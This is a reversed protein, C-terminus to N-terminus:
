QAVGLCSNIAQMHEKYENSNIMEQNEDYTTAKKMIELAETCKGQKFYGWALSDLYYVNTPESKLALNVLDIGKSINIDHDILLYGYFNLEFAESQENISKEFKSIINQLKTENISGKELTDEYEIMAAISLFTRKKTKDYMKNAFIEATKNDKIVKSIFYILNTNNELYKSITNFLEKEKKANYFVYILNFLFEQNSTLEYLDTSIKKFKNFNNEQAYLALLRTCVLVTCKNDNEKLFTELAAQSSKKNANLVFDLESIKIALVESPAEDKPYNQKALKYYRLAEKLNKNYIQLDGALEYNKYHKEKQMLKELLKLAEKINSLRVNYSIQLRLLVLNTDSYKTSENNMYDLNEKDTDSLIGLAFAKELMKELRYQKYLELFAISANKFDMGQEYALANFLKEDFSMEQKTEYRVLEQNEKKAACALFFLSLFVLFLRWYM